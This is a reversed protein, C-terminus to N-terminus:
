TIICSPVVFLLGVLALLLSTHIFHFPMGEKRHQSSYRTSFHVPAHDSLLVRCCPTRSGGSIPTGPRMFFVSTVVIVM